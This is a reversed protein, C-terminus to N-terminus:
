AYTPTKRYSPHPVFRELTFAALEKKEINEHSATPTWDSFTVRKQPDLASLALQVSIGDFLLHHYVLCFVQGMPTELLFIKFLPPKQVDFSLNQDDLWAVVERHLTFEIRRIRGSAM